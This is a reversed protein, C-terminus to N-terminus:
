YHLHYPHAAPHIKEPPEVLTDMSPHDNFQASYSPPTAPYPSIPVTYTPEKPRTAEIDLPYLTYTSPRRRRCSCGRRLFFLAVCGLLFLGVVVAIFILKTKSLPCPIQQNRANYCRSGSFRARRAQIEHLITSSM